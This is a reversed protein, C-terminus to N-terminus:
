GHSLSPPRQAAASGGERRSWASENQRPENTLIQEVCTPLAVKSKPLYVGQRMIAVLCKVPSVAGAPGEKPLAHVYIDSLELALQNGARMLMSNGLLFGVNGRLLPEVTKRSREAWVVASLDPIQAASYGDRLTGIGRDAYENRLREHQMRSVMTQLAKIAVRHPQPSDHLGETVQKSWLEKIASVYGRVTNYMLVNDSVVEEDGVAGTDDEGEVAPPATSPGAETRPRKDARSQSQKPGARKGSRPSRGIVTEKMFLLLKGEDVWDGQLFKGGPQFKMTACWKQLITLRNCTRGELVSDLRVQWEKQKPLYNKSTNVPRNITHSRLMEDIASQVRNDIAQQLANAHASSSADADVQITTTM